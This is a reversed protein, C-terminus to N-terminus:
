GLTPESATLRDFRMVCLSFYLLFMTEGDSWDIGTLEEIRRLRYDLTNRHIHLEDCTPGPKQSHSLYASITEIYATKRTKDSQLLIRLISPLYIASNDMERLGSILSYLAFNESSVLCQGPKACFRLRIAKRTQQYHYHFEGLRYFPFSFIGFLSNAALIPELKAHLQNREEMEDTNFNILFTLAEGDIVSHAGLISSLHSRITAISNRQPHYDHLDLMLISFFGESEMHATQARFRLLPEDINDNRIMQLLLGESSFFQRPELGAQNNLCTRISLCVLGLLQPDPPPLTQCGHGSLILHLPQSSPMDIDTVWHSEGTDCLLQCVSFGYPLDLSNNEFLDDSWQFAPAYGAHIYDEWSANQPMDAPGSWGLVHLTEDGLLIPRSLGERSLDLIRPLDGELAALMISHSLQEEM